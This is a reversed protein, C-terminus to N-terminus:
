RQGRSEETQHLAGEILVSIEWDYVTKCQTDHSECLTADFTAMGAVASVGLSRALVDSTVHCQATVRLM